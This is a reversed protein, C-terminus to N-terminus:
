HTTTSYIYIYLCTFNPNTKGKDQYNRQIPLTIHPSNEGFKLIDIVRWKFYQYKFVIEKGFNTGVM